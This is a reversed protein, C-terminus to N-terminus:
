KRKGFNFVFLSFINSASPLRSGVMHFLVAVTYFTLATYNLKSLVFIAENEAYSIKQTFYELVDKMKASTKRLPLFAVANVYSNKLLFTKSDLIASSGYIRKVIQPGIAQLEPNEVRTGISPSIAHFRSAAIYAAPVRTRMCWYITKLPAASLAKFFPKGQILLSAFGRGRLEPALFTACIQITSYRKGYFINQASFGLVKGDCDRAVTWYHTSDYVDPSMVVTGENIYSAIFRRIEARENPSLADPAIMSISIKNSIMM